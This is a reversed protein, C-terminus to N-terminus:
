VRIIQDEYENIQDLTMDLLNQKNYYFSKYWHITESIAKGFDWRPIWGLISNAKGSNLQLLNSEHPHNCSSVEWSAPSGWIQVALEVMEQVTKVSTYDPGFNWPGSFKDPENWLKEALTLYGSLPELVHQWPRTSLPARLILRENRSWARVADPVLRDFSWDGGGIVNGSRATALGVGKEKFFSRYYASAVHEACAKSSSYPDHGGLSDTEVYAYNDEINEYCKDTTIAVISKVNECVISGQLINTTGMVNTRFTTLPDAYSKRVLPQAAMHFIIEPEAKKLTNLCNDLHNIDGRYDNVSNNIDLVSFLDPSSVPEVLSMGSVIAGLQNLWLCLWSGKFGTHGTILVKRNEWFKNM